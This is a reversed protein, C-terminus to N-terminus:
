FVCFFSYASILPTFTAWSKLCCLNFGMAQQCAWNLWWVPRHAEPLWGSSIPFSIRGCHDMVNRRHALFCWCCRWLSRLQSHATPAPNGELRWGAYKFYTVPIKHREFSNKNKNIQQQLATSPIWPRMFALCASHWQAVGGAWSM